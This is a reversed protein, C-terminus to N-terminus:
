CDYDSDYGYDYGQFPVCRADIMDKIKEQDVSNTLGQGLEKAYDICKFNKNYAAKILTWREFNSLYNVVKWLYSFCEEHGQEITNKMIVFREIYISDLDLTKCGETLFILCELQGNYAAEALVIDDVEANTQEVLFKLCKLHGKQACFFTTNLTFTPHKANYKYYQLCKLHGYIALLDLLESSDEFFSFYRVFQAYDGNIAVTRLFYEDVVLDSPNLIQQESQAVNNTQM